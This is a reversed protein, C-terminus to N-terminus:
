SNRGSNLFKGTGWRLLHFTFIYYSFRSAFTIKHLIFAFSSVPIKEHTVTEFRTFMTLVNIILNIGDHMM